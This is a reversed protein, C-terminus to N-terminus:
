VSSVIECTNDFEQASYGNVYLEPTLSKIHKVVKHKKLQKLKEHAHNFSTIIIVEYRFKKTTAIILTYIFTAEQKLSVKM